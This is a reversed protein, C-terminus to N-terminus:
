VGCRPSRRHRRARAPRLQCRPRSSGRVRPPPSANSPWRTARPRSPRRPTASLAVVRSATPAISAIAPASAHTIEVRAGHADPGGCIMVTGPVPPNWDTFRRAPSPDVSGPLASPAPPAAAAERPTIAHMTKPSTARERRTRTPIPVIKLITASTSTTSAAGPTRSRAFRVPMADGDTRWPAIATDIAPAATPSAPEITAIADDV